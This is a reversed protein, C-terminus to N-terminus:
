GRFYKRHFKRFDENLGEVDGIKPPGHPFWEKPHMEKDFADLIRQEDEPSIPPGEEYEEEPIKPPERRPGGTDLPMGCKKRYHSQEKHSSWKM